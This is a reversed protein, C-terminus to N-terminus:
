PHPLVWAAVEGCTRLQEKILASHAQMIRRFEPRGGRAVNQCVRCRCFCPVIFPVGGVGDADFGAHRVRGCQAGCAYAVLCCQLTSTSPSAGLSVDSLVGACPLVVPM